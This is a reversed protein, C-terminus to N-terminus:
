YNQVSVLKFREDFRHPNCDPCSADRRLLRHRSFQHGNPCRLTYKSRSMTQSSEDVSKCREPRAGVRSAWMKWIRSHDSTGRTEFDLAHAIEHLVTDEQEARPLDNFRFSSLFITKSTKNCSGFAARKTHWGFKWGKQLLGWQSMKYQAFAEIDAKANVETTNLLANM